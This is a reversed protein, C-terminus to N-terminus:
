RREISLALGSIRVPSAVRVKEGELPSVPVFRLKLKGNKVASRPVEFAFTQPQDFTYLAISGIERDGARVSVLFEPSAAAHVGEVELVFTEAKAKSVNLTVTVPKAGIVIPKAHRIVLEKQMVMLAALVFPLM